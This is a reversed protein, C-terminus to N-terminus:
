DKLAGVLGLFANIEDENETGSTLNNNDDGNAATENAAPQLDALYKNTLASFASLLAKLKPDKQLKECCYKNFAPAPQTLRKKGPPPLTGNEKEALYKRCPL